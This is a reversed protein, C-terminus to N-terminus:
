WLGQGPVLECHWQVTWRPREVVCMRPTVMGVRCPLGPMAAVAAMQGLGLRTRNGFDNSGDGLALGQISVSADEIPALTLSMGRGIRLVM